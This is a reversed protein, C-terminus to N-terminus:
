TVGPNLALDCAQYLQIYSMNHRSLSSYINIYFCKSIVLTVCYLIIWM